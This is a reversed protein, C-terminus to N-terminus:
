FPFILIIFLYNSFLLRKTNLINFIIIALKFLIILVWKDVLGRSFIVFVVRSQSRIAKFNFM